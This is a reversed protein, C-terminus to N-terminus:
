VNKMLVYKKLLRHITVRQNGYSIKKYRTVIYKLSTPSIEEDLYGDTKNVTGLFSINVPVEKSCIHFFHIIKQYHIYVAELFGNYLYFSKHFYLGIM